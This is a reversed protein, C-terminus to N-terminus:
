RNNKSRGCIMSAHLSGYILVNLVKDRIVNNKFKM